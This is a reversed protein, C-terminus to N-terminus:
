SCGQFDEALFFKQLDEEDKSGTPHKPEGVKDWGWGGILGRGRGVRKSSSLGTQTRSFRHKDLFEWVSWPVAMYIYIYIGVYMSGGPVVGIYAYIATGHLTQTVTRFMFPALM